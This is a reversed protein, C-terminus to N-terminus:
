SNVRDHINIGIFQIDLVFFFGLKNQRLKSKLTKRRKLNTKTETVPKNKIQTYNYTIFM